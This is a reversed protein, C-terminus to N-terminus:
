DTTEPFSQPLAPSCCPPQLLDQRAKVEPEETTCALHLHYQLSLLNKLPPKLGATSAWNVPVCIGRSHRTM